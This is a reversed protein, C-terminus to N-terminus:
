DAYEETNVTETYVENNRTKTTTTKLKDSSQGAGELNTYAGNDGVVMVERLDGRVAELTTSGDPNTTVSVTDPNQRYETVHAM